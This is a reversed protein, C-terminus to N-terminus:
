SSTIFVSSALTPQGGNIVSVSFVKCGNELVQARAVKPDWFLEIEIRQLLFAEVVPYFVEDPVEGLFVVACLFGDLVGSMVKSVVAKVEVVVEGDGEIWAHLEDSGKACGSTVVQGHEVYGISHRLYPLFRSQGILVSPVDLGGNASASVPLVTGVELQHEGLLYGTRSSDFRNM